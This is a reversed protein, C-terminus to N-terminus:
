ISAVIKLKKLAGVPGKETEQNGSVAGMGGSVFVLAARVFLNYYQYM